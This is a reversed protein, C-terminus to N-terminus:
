IIVCYDFLDKYTEKLINIIYPREYIIVKNKNNALLIALQLKQSHELITSNDKYTIYRFIIPEATNKLNNFQYLLHNKNNDDNVNCLNFNLNNNAAYQFLAANDRPLCPGGYGFGYNCCKNGIRTDSGIANLVIDSNCNKTHCLDGIMNTYSIKTTIFCNISLKTIEAELLNMKKYKEISSNIIIKDYINMIIDYIDDNAGILIFDPNIINNIISGQAIFSPNYCLQYNNDRLKGYISDCYEPIVTSSIIIIKLTDNKYSICNNIFDNIYEHNYLGNELSPTQIYSFIINCKDILNNLNYEIILNTKFEKILNNLKEETYDYLDNKINDLIENNIDYIYLIDLKQLYYLM